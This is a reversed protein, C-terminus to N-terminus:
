ISSRSTSNQVQSWSGKLFAASGDRTWLQWGHTELFPNPHRSFMFKEPFKLMWFNRTSSSQPIRPFHVLSDDLGQSLPLPLGVHLCSGLTWFPSLWRLQTALSNGQSVM